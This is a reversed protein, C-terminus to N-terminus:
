IGIIVNNNSSSSSFMLERIYYGVMAVELFDEDLFPVRAELGWAQTSKNARLCDFQNLELM